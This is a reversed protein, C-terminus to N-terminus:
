SEAAAALSRAPPTTAYAWRSSPCGSALAEFILVSDLRSLGSGGFDESVTIAGMGLQAAKRLVDVPFHKNQDWEVAHRAMDEDAFARATAVIALQDDTLQLDRLSPM